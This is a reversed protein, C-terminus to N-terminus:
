EMTLKSMVDSYIDAAHDCFNKKVIEVQSSDVVFVSMKFLTEDEDSIDFSVLYGDKKKEVEISNQKEIKERNLIKTAASLAKQKISKPIKNEILSMEAYSKGMLLLLEEGDSECDKKLLVGSDLMESISQNIEFYNAINYEQLIDCIKMRSIPIDLKKLLYSILLKIDKKDYLGGPSIGDSFSDFSM